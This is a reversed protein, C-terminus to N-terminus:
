FAKTWRKRKKKQVLIRMYPPHRCFTEEVDLNAHQAAKKGEHQINLQGEFSKLRLIRCALQSIETRLTM